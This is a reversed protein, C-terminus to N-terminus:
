YIDKTYYELKMVNGFSIRKGSSIRNKSRTKLISSLNNESKIKNKIKKLKLGSKITLTRKKNIKRLNKFSSHFFYNKVEKNLKNSTFYTELFTQFDEKREEEKEIIKKLNLVNLFIDGNYENNYKPDIINENNENLFYFKLLLKNQYDEKPIYIINQDLIPEYIIEYEKIKEPFYIVMKMNKENLTSLIIYNEKSLRILNKVKKQFFFIKIRSIIKNIKIINEKKLYYSYNNKKTRKKEESM